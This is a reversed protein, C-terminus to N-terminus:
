LAYEWLDRAGIDCNKVSKVKTAEKFKGVTMNTKSRVVVGDVVYMYGSYMPYENDLERENLVKQTM